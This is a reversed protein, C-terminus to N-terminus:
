SIIDSVSNPCCEIYVLVVSICLLIHYLASVQNVPCTLMCAMFREAYELLMSASHGEALTM